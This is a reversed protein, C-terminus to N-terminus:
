DFNIENGSRKKRIYQALRTGETKRAHRNHERTIQRNKRRWQREEKSLRSGM